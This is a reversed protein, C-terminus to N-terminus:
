AGDDPATTVRAVESAPIAVRGALTVMGPPEVDAVKEILVKATPLLVLAVKVPVYVPTVCAIESVTVGSGVTCGSREETVTLGALTAPGVGAAPVTVRVPAAAAPPSVTDSELEAGEVAVTGADTLIGAPPVLAANVIVVMLTALSVGTTIVATRPLVVFVAEIVTETFRAPEIVV